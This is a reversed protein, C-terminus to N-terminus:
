MLLRDDNLEGVTPEMAGSSGRVLGGYASAGAHVTVTPDLADADVIPKVVAGPLPANLGVFQWCTAGPHPANLGRQDATHRVLRGPM